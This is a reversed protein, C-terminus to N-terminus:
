RRKYGTLMARILSERHQYSSLLVGAIHLLILVLTSNVAVEHAEEWGDEQDHGTEHNLDATSQRPEHAENHQETQASPAHTATTLWTFPGIGEEISLLKMGSLTTASLSLLLALTMAGGLPNHGIFRPATGAKLDRAYILVTRPGRVFDRFRAHPSGIVGWLLRALIMGAIAYGSYSHLTTNDEGTLYSFVFLTLLSWHFFRIFRDWVYVKDNM